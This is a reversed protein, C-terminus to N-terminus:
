ESQDSRNRRRAKDAPAANGKGNHVVEVARGTVGAAFVKRMGMKPRVM